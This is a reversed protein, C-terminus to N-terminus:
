ISRTVSTIELEGRASPKINEAIEVVSNSLFLAWGCRLQIKTVPSKKLQYFKELTRLSLLVM